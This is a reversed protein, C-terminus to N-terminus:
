RVSRRVRTGLYGWLTPHTRLCSRGVASIPAVPRPERGALLEAVSSLLLPLGAALHLYPYTAFSDGPGPRFTAQGLIAGTDIGADVLHVTTGALEPRGEALAWYGGHVGRYQPAVGAHMNIFPAPVCALTDRSIIRTGSVVVVRPDLRRLVARADECNVSAVAVPPPEVPSLDLGHKRAIAAIRPRGRRALVPVAVASFLIQGAVTRLGLTRARRRALRWRSVPRELIVPFPGFAAALAHFM